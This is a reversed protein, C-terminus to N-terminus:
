KELLKLIKTKLDTFGKIYGVQIQKSTTPMELECKNVKERVERRGEEVGAQHAQLIFQELEKFEGTEIGDAIYSFEERFRKVIEPVEQEVTHLEQNKSHPMNKIEWLSHDHGIGVPMYIKCIPCVRGQQSEQESKPQEKDEPAQYSLCNCEPQISASWNGRIAM